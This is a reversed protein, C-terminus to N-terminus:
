EVLDAYAYVNFYTGLPPIEEPSPEEEYYEVYEAIWANRDEENYFYFDIEVKSSPDVCEYGYESKEEPVTWGAEIFAAKAAEERDGALAFWYFPYSLVSGKVNYEIAVVDNDGISSVYPINVGTVGRYELFEAIQEAITGDKLEIPKNMEEAEKIDKVTNVIVDTGGGFLSDYFYIEVLNKSDIACYEGYDEDLTVTWGDKELSKAASETISTKTALYYEPPMIGGWSEYFDDIVEADVVNDENLEEIFKISVGEVGRSKLFAYCEESFKSGGCSALPLALFLTFGLLKINKM